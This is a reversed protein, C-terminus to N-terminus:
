NHAAVRLGLDRAVPFRATMGISFGWGTWSRSRWRLPTDAPAGFEHAFVDLHGNSRDLQHHPLVPADTSGMSGGGDAWRRIRVSRGATFTWIRVNREIQQQAGRGGSFRADTGASAHEAGFFFGFDSQSRYRMVGWLLPAMRIRESYGTDFTTDNIFATVRENYLWAPLMTGIGGSISWRPPQVEQARAASHTLALGVLAVLFLGSVGARPNRNM